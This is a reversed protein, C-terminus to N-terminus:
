SAVEDRVAVWPATVGHEVAWLVAQSRSSVGMARYAGRVHSKVTNMTLGLQRAIDKNAAGAAILSVV